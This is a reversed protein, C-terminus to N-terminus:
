RRKGEPDSAPGHWRRKCFAKGEPNPRRERKKYCETVRQRQIERQSERDSERERESESQSERERNCSGTM